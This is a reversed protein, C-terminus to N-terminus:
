PVKCNTCLPPCIGCNLTGGCGNPFNGCDGPLCTAPVCPVCSAGTAICQNTYSCFTSGAGCVLFRAPTNTILPNNGNNAASGIAYAWVAHVKSDQYQPPLTFSFGHDGTIVFAADVDPRSGNALVHAVFVGLGPPGDLYFDLYSSASPTAPDYVWGNLNGSHDTTPTDLYGTPPLVFATTTCFGLGHGSSRGDDRWHSSKMNTNAPCSTVDSGGNTNQGMCQGVVVPSDNLALGCVVGDPTQLSGPSLNKPDQYECWTWYGITSSMDFAAKPSWGPPCGPLSTFSMEMGFAKAPNYGM